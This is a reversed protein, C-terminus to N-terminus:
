TAKARPPLREDHALGGGQVYKEGVHAAGRAQALNLAFRSGMVNHGRMVFDNPTLDSLICTLLHLRGAVAEHNCEFRRSPGDLAGDAHLAREMIVVASM